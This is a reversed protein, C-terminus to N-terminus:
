GTGGEGPVLLCNFSRACSQAGTAYRFDLELRVSEFSDAAVVAVKM